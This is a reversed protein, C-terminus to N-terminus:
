DLNVIKRYLEPDSRKIMRLERLLNAHHPDSPDMGYVSTLQDEDIVTKEEVVQTDTQNISM